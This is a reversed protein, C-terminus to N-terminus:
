ADCPASETEEYGCNSCWRHLAQREGQSYDVAEPMREVIMREEDSLEDWGRLRGEHCRPCREKIEDNIM